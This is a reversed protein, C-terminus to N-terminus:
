EREALMREMLEIESSQSAVIARALNLVVGSDARDLAAEAMEVAGRHHAIMLELFREEAEVGTSAELQAVQEPTALGPMPSGPEHATAAGAAASGSADSHGDHGSGDSGGRAPRTMWTMSPESGAQSLGWQELWGYMQGAQQAQSTAIDYSLHAIDDAESRDRILMALEVGQLHHVQMDRAFGADASRDAPTPDSLTSLRGFSFAVIAVVVLAIGAAVLAALRAPRRRSPEADSM